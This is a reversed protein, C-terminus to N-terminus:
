EAVRWRTLSKNIFQIIKDIGFGVLAAFFMLAVLMETQMRTQAQVM